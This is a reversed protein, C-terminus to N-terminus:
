ENLEALYPFTDVSKQTAQEIGDGMADADDISAAPGRALFNFTVDLSDENPMRGGCTAHDKGLLQAREIELYTHPDAFDCPKSTDILQFNSEARTLWMASQEPTWDIKGDSKDFKILNQGLVDKFVPSTIDFPDSENYSDLNPDAPPFLGNTTLHITGFEVLAGNDVNGAFGVFKDETNGTDDDSSSNCGYAAAVSIAGLIAVLVAAATKVRALSTRGKPTRTKM